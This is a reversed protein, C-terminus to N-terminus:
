PMVYLQISTRVYGNPLLQGNPKSLFVCTVTSGTRPHVRTFESVGDNLDTRWFTRLAEYESSSFIYDYSVKEGAVSSARTRLPPGVDTQFEDVNQEDEFKISGLLAKQPVTSPWSPM